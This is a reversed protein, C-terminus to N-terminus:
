ATAGTRARTVAAADFPTLRLNRPLYLPHAPQGGKTIRLCKPPEDSLRKLMALVEAPRALGAANAGWAVCVEACGNIARLIHFDTEPGVPYGAARLDAPKTARYAFLNVVELSGFGHAQAFAICCLLTPDDAASDATSPNLMIFLLPRGTGWQRGLTYRFLGCASIVAWRGMTM